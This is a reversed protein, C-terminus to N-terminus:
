DVLTALAPPEPLLWANASVIGLGALTPRLGHRGRGLDDPRTSRGTLISRTAAVRSAARPRWTRLQPVTTSYTLCANSSRRTQHGAQVRIQETSRTAPYTNRPADDVDFCCRRDHAAVFKTGTGSGPPNREPVEGRRVLAAHGRGRAAARRDVRPLVAHLRPLDEPRRIAVATASPDLRLDFRDALRRECRRRRSRERGARRLRRGPRASSARRRRRGRRVVLSSGLEDAVPRPRRAVAAVFAAATTSRGVADDLIAPDLVFLPM